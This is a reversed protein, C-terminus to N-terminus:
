VSLPGKGTLVRDDGVRRTIGQRDMYELLSVTYKRSSGFMEKVELLTIKGHSRIHESIRGAMENYAAASFVVNDSVKVVRHQEILLNLFEADPELDGPPSYPNDELSKLYREMTERQGHTLPVERGPLKVSLVDEILVGASFLRDLVYGFLSQTLKLRTRLAEKPMGIRLPFQAYYAKVLDVSKAAFCTWSATSFILANSIKEGLVQVRNEAVLREVLGRIESPPLNSQITLGKLDLPGKADLMNLVAEEPAGKERAALSGITAANFRRHLRARPDIAEGGGLTDTTSRIIFLDGKVVAVPEALKLQAWGTEGPALEKKDLLRVRAVSEAAGSHFSVEANHRLPRAATALLRLKVDLATTPHLWGSSTVVQGRKLEEIGVGSLNAAVRDGPQACDIKEKHTQLGRVRSRLEGPVIEVEDALKLEGDILTGTVVTGFGPMTFIRDIPLRPRGINRKAPATNLIGDIAAKLGEIGQGTVASVSMIPAKELMTGRLVESVDSKVLELWDADVLDSKTIVAIGRGVRLLDLINLHERTQPMVGEDAAVVLLAMDVGGVGALMNKIFREHGPVDVVSVERGSPLKLWAFGLDITMGRVREEPLRDPDIGTLARVLVSKGHDVHGATGILYM